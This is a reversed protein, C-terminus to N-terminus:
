DVVSVRRIKNKPELIRNKIIAIYFLVLFIIFMVAIIYSYVNIKFRNFISAGTINKFSDPNKSTKTFYVDNYEKGDYIVDYVGSVNLEYDKEKGNEINVNLITRQENSENKLMIEIAGQYLSNGMNKINVFSGNSNNIIKFEIYKNEEIFFIRRSFIDGYYANIEWGGKSTNSLFNINIYNGSSIINEFFINKEPDFIKVIITENYITKNNQNLLFVKFNYDLPPKISENSEIYISYPKSLIQIEKIAYGRNIIEGNFDKEIAELTLNYKGAISYEKIIENFLFNNNQISMTKNFSNQLTVILDGNFPKSNEKFVSGNIIIEDKPYFNINNINYNIYLNRTINFKQYSAKTENYYEIQIYCYGEMVLPIDIIFYKKINYNIEQYARYVSLSKDNCILFIELFDGQNYNSDISFNLNLKDLFNYSPLFDNEINISSASVLNIFFLSLIIWITKKM